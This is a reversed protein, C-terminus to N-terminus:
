SNEIKLAKTIFDLALLVLTYITPYNSTIFTEKVAWYM